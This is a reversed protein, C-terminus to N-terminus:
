RVLDVWVLRHPGAALGDGGLLDAGAAATDPWFVGSAAVQWDVSPLIYSVRLDGPGDQPWDVNHLLPDGLLDAGLLPRREARPEPDQLRPDDLLTQIASRRGDGDIPDLNANGLIVFRQDPPPALTGDLYHTWFLIEDQNRLGNRDEPGDFVPPTADFAMLTVTLDDVMVPVVWHGNSSLRQLSQAMSSPFPQGDVQPMDAWDFSQWLRDSYNQVQDTAIPFRSLIALGGDGTFRGYGQADSADGRRGDGDLDAGTATGGNPRLAFLHPMQHGTETLLDAFAHLAVLDLDFDFDTLLLIDPSTQAIIAAIAHVQDDGKRIDRLLLGPGDRSLPAAFTAIRLTDALAPPSLM